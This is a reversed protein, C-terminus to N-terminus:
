KKDDEAQLQPIPANSSKIHIDGSSSRLVVAPGGGNVTGHLVGSKQKGQVTMTVPLESEVKGGSCRADLNFSASKPLTLTIGGGSVELRCEETPQGVLDAVITGSSTSAQVAAHAAKVEINGGSNNANVRGKASKVTISGSSTRATVQNGADGISIDGGSNRAEVAGKVTQIRITGSSTEAKVSEAAEGVGIDGGSNRVDVPGKAIKIKIAGSSTKAV